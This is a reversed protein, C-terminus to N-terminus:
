KDNEVLHNLYETLSMGKKLAKKRVEEKRKSNIKIHIQADKNTM